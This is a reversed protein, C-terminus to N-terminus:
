LSTLLSRLTHNKRLDRMASFLISRVHIRKCGLLEAIKEVNYRETNDLGFWKTLIDRKSEELTLVAANVEKCLEASFITDEISARDDSRLLVLELDEQQQM